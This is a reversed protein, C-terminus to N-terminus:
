PDVPTNILTPVGCHQALSKNHITRDVGRVRRSMRALLSIQQTQYKMIDMQPFRM